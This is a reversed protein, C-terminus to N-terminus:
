LVNPCVGSPAYACSYGYVGAPCWKYGSACQTQAAATTPCVFQCNPGTRGVSQGNACMMADAPCAVQMGGEIKWQGSRCVYSADAICSTSGNTTLCTRSTGEPYSVGDNVCSAAYPNSCTGSYLFSAGAANLECRNSYTKPAPMQMSCAAGQPANCQFSPQGCVPAYEATCIGGGNGVQVTTTTKASQAASDRVVVSITFTGSRSYSHTFTSTQVFAPSSAASNMLAYPVYEDGWSIDYSLNGNEPDSANVSWTGTENVSLTTPGSVGSIVPPRNGSTNPNDFYISCYGKGEAFCARQTCMRPSDPSTRSCSNCGDNWAKCSPSPIFNAVPCEYGIVCGSENHKAQAQSGDNCAIPMYNIPRCSSTQSGVTIQVTGLIERQVPAMCRPMNDSRNADGCMDTTKVLSASYTGDGTYTHTNIGPSTCADAPAYCSTVPESAGDGYEITYQMSAQHFGSIKTYFTVSLPSDGLQPNASIAGSGGGGGCWRRIRERSAPGVIGVSSLGQSSQWQAVATATVPGFYGTVNGNYYGQDHLYEQMGQVDNGSVGVGLNRDFRQCIRHHSTSDDDTPTTPPPSQRLANLQATLDKVQALLKEIQAQIDDVSLASAPAVKVGIFVVGVVALAICFNKFMSVSLLLPHTIISDTDYCDYVSLM